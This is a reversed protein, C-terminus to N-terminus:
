KKLSTYADLVRLCYSGDFITGKNQVYEHTLPLVLSFLKKRLTLRYGVFDKNKDALKIEASEIQFKQVQSQNCLGYKISLVGSPFLTDLISENITALENRDLNLKGAEKNYIQIAKENGSDAISYDLIKHLIEHVGIATDARAFAPEFLHIPLVTVHIDRYGMDGNAMGGGYNSILDNRILHLNATQPLCEINFFRCIDFFLGATAKEEIIYKIDEARKSILEDIQSTYISSEAKKGFYELAAIAQGEHNSKLKHFFEEMSKSGFVAKELSGWKGHKRVCKYDELLKQEDLSLPQNAAFFWTALSQKVHSDWNSLADVLYIRSAIDSLGCNIEM